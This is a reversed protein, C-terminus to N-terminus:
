KVEVQVVAETAAKMIEAPTQEGATKKALHIAPLYASLLNDIYNIKMAFNINQPFTGTLLLLKYPNVSATVVGVVQGKANLLPGGSNGPQIPISIQLMRVDDQVGTTSNIIGQSLKANTGLLGPIPFGVTYVADGDKIGPDRSIPLPTATFEATNVKLLALDNVPDKTVVTASAKQSNKFKIEITKANDVVHYNTVILEPTVFFGTGTRSYTVAEDSGPYIRFLFRKEKKENTYEITDASTIRFTSGVSQEDTSALYSDTKKHVLGTFVKPIATAKIQMKIKGAEWTTDTTQVVFGIYDYGPCVSFDNNVIAFEYKNDDTVWIGELPNGPKTPFFTEIAQQRNLDAGPLPQAFGPLSLFCITCVTLFHLLARIM